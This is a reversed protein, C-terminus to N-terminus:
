SILSHPVFTLVYCVRGAIPEKGALAVKYNRRILRVLRTTAREDWLSPMSRMITITQTKPEYCRKWHGDDVTVNGRQSAPELCVALRRGNRSRVIRKITTRSPGQPSTTMTVQKGRLNVSGHAKIFRRLIQDVSPAQPPAGGASAPLTGPLLSLAV